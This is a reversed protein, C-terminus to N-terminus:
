ETVEESPPTVMRPIWRRWMPRAVPKERATIVDTVSVAQAAAKSIVEEGLLYFVEDFSGLSNWASSTYWCVNGSHTPSTNDDGLEVYNTAADILTADKVVCTICYGTNLAIEYPVAITFTILAYSATLDAIAYTASEALIAGTPKADTGVTGTKAYLQAVLHGVPSGVKRLYFKAVIVKFKNAVPSTFAQGIASIAATASPHVATLTSSHSYNTESYSDITTSM